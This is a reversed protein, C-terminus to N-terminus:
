IQLERLPVGNESIVSKGGREYVPKDVVRVNNDEGALTVPERLGNATLSVASSLIALLQSPSPNKTLTRGALQELLMENEKRIVAISTRINREVAACSTNFHKAVTPYVWKTVLQLREPQEACLEVAYSLQYFGIYNATLGLRFLLKNILASKM